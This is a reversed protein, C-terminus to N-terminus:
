KLERRAAALIREREAAPYGALKAEFFALLEVIDADSVPAASPTAAAPPATSGVRTAPGDSM